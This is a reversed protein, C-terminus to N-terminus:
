SAEKDPFGGQKERRNKGQTQGTAEGRAEFWKRIDKVRDPQSDREEKRNGKTGKKAFEKSGGRPGQAVSELFKQKRKEAESKKAARGCEELCGTEASTPKGASVEDPPHDGHVPSEGLVGLLPGVAGQIQKNEVKERLSVAKPSKRQFYATVRSQRHLPSLETSQVGTGRKRKRGPTEQYNKLKDELRQM